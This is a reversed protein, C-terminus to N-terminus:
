TSRAGTRSGRCPRARSVASRRPTTLRRPSCGVSESLFVLRENAAEAADRARREQELLRERERAAAERESLHFVYAIAEFRDTAVMALGVLAPVCRGDKRFYEKEYPASGGRAEAEQM